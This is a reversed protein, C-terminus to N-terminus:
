PNATKEMLMWGHRFQGFDLRDDEAELRSRNAPGDHTDDV